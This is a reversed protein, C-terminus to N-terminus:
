ALAERVSGAAVPRAARLGRRAILSEGVLALLALAVLWPIASQGGPQTAIADRLAVRTSVV